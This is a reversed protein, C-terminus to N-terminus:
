GVLLKAVAQFSYGAIFLPATYGDDNKAINEFIVYLKCSAPENM